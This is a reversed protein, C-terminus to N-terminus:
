GLRLSWRGKYRTLEIAAWPQPDFQWIAPLSLDLAAALIVRAVTASVLAVSRKELPVLWRRVRAHVDLLAEGGHPAATMDTRWLTFAEPDREAIDSMAEGAWAGYGVESVAAVAEVPITIASAELEIEPALLVRDAAVLRERVSDPLSGFPVARRDCGPFTPARRDDINPVCILTLHAVM